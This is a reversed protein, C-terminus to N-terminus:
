EIKEVVEQTQHVMDKRGATFDPLDIYPIDIVGFWELALLVILIIVLWIIYKGMKNLEGETYRWGM